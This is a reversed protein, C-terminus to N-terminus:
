GPGSTAAIIAVRHDTGCPGHGPCSPRVRVAETRRDLDQLGHFAPYGTAIGALVVAPAVPDRARRQLAACAGHADSTARTSASSRSAHSCPSAVDLTSGGSSTAGNASPRARVSAPDPANAPATRLASVHRDGVGARAQHDCQPRVRAVVATTRAGKPRIPRGTGTPAGRDPGRRHRRPVEEYPLRPTRQRGSVTACRAPIARDFRASRDRCALDKRDARLRLVFYQRLHEPLQM